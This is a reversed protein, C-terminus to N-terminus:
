HHLSERESLLSTPLNPDSFFIHCLLCLPPLSLSLPLSPLNSTSYQQIQTCFLLGHALSAPSSSPVTQRRPFWGQQCRSKLRLSQTQVESRWFYLIVFNYQKLSNCKHYCSYFSLIVALENGENLIFVLATNGQHQKPGWVPEQLVTEALSVRLGAPSPSLRCPVEGPLRAGISKAIGPFPIQDISPSCTRM